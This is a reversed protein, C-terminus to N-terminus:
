GAEGLRQSNYNANEGYLYDDTKVPFYQASINEWTVTEEM